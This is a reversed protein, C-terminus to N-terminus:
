RSFCGLSRLRRYFRPLTANCRKLFDVFGWLAFGAVFLITVGMWWKKVALFYGTNWLTM